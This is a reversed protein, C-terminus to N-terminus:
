IMASIIGWFGKKRDGETTGPPFFVSAIISRVCMFSYIFLWKLKLEEIEKWSCLRPCMCSIDATDSCKDSITFSLPDVQRAFLFGCPKGVPEDSDNYLPRLLPQTQHTHRHMLIHEFFLFDRTKWGDRIAVVECIMKTEAMFFSVNFSQWQPDMVTKWGIHKKNGYKTGEYIYLLANPFLSGGFFRLWSM